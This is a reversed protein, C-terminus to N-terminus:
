REVEIKHWQGDAINKSTTVHGPGNGLDMTLIVKGGNVELAMFDDTLMQKVRKRTGVENGLYMLLGNPESTRVYMSTQTYTAAQQLKEPNRLQISTNGHFKAGIEIRKAQDRALAVKRKLAAIKDAIDTNKLKIRKVSEVNKKTLKTLEPVRVSVRDM